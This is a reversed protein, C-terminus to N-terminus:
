GQGSVRESERDTKQTLGIQDCYDLLPKVSRRSTGLLDRIQSVTIRGERELVERIRDCAEERLSELTCFDGPLRVMRGERVENEFIDFKMPEDDSEAMLQEIRLFDFGADEMRRRMGDAKQRYREDPCISFGPLHLLGEASKEVRHREELFELFVKWLTLPWDAYQQRLAEQPMGPRYPYRRHYDSLCLHINEEVKKVFEQHGMWFQRDNELRLIPMGATQGATHKMDAETSGMSSAAEACTWWGPHHKLFLELRDAETGTELRRLEEKNETRRRRRRVPNVDLIVGGGITEVPSYFRVAFHDGCRAALPEELLLQAYCTDGATLRETDLLLVRCLIQATQVCLHLRTRNEIVRRTHRTMRLRVDLLTTSILTGPLALVNGRRIEETGIGALNVATREGPEARDRTDGYVQIGRIKLIRNGPYLQLSSESSLTGSLLTGSAITGFGPKHFVRDVPLRPNESFERDSEAESLMQEIKRTLEELGIGKEASVCVFPAGAYVTGDLERRIEDEVMERWPEDVLDCKSLVVLIQKIGFMELIDLHERTQPMMGEDAAIVLLVLDMGSAGAAMTGVFKEHGPVDVIGVREGCPLDLYTFGLEITIGRRKEERLRDLDRGTLAKILTTKGHDIHGATGVIWHRM